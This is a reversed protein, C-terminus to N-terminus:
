DFNMHEVYLEEFGPYSALEIYHMMRSLELARDWAEKSLVVEIAGNGAANGVERTRNLLEKPFLGIAAASEKNVYNGFGGAFTLIDM